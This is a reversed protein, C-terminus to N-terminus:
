LLEVHILLLRPMRLSRKLKKWIPSYHLPAMSQLSRRAALQLLVVCYHHHNYWYLALAAAHTFHSLSCFLSFFLPSLSSIDKPLQFTPFTLALPPFLGFSFALTNPNLVVQSVPKSQFCSSSLFLLLLLHFTPPLSAEFSRSSWSLFILTWCNEDVEKSRGQRTERYTHSFAVSIIFILIFSHCHSQNGTTPLSTHVFYTYTRAWLTSRNDSRRTLLKGNEERAKKEKVKKSNNNMKRAIASM